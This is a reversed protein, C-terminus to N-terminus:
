GEGAIGQKMQKMNEPRSAKSGKHLDLLPQIAPDEVVHGKHKQGWESYTDEIDKKIQRDITIQVHQEKPEEIAKAKESKAKKPNYYKYGAESHMQSDSRCPISKTCSLFHNIILKTFRTYMLKSM